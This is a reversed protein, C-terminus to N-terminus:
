TKKPEKIFLSLILDIMGLLKAFMLCGIIVFINIMVEVPDYYIGNEYSLFISFTTFFALIVILSVVFNM